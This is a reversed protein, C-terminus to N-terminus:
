VRQGAPPCKKTKSPECKKVLVFKAKQYFIHQDIQAVKAKRDVWRPTAIYDTHYFLSTTLAKIREGKLVRYAARKSEEWLEGQPKENVKNRDLTWSFQAKAYVVDCINDGWRGTAVRNLTVQGVAIKGKKSEVGAEHFINKALCMVEKASYKVKKTDQTLIAKIDHLENATARALEEMTEANAKQNAEISDMRARMEANDAKWQLYQSHVYTGSGAFIAAMLAFAGLSKTDIAKRNLQKM